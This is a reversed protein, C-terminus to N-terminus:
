HQDVFHLLEGPAFCSAQIWTGDEGWGQVEEAERSRWHNSLEDDILGDIQVEDRGAEGGSM